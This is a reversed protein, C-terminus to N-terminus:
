ILLSIFEQFRRRTKAREGAAESGLWTGSFHHISFTNETIHTEGSVYDFPQFFDPACITMAGDFIRQTELSARMGNKLLPVTDYFGSSLRNESGDSRLFVCNERFDLMAKIAPNGKQAGCVGTNIVGWKEMGCFGLQFLLEDFNRVLEVDTDLYIGGHQYLIDLRAADSVFSWCERDYAQKMYLNQKVDYNSEDWRIIEYDPCFQPWTDMCRKLSDPIPRGSFWCYHIKKPILPEQGSPIAASKLTHAMDLLMVPLFYATINQLTGLKELTQVVPTFASVTILLIVEKSVQALTNPSEVPVQRGALEIFQGQKHLDADVYCLVADDLQHAHLWRPAITQGIVGAGYVIVPARTQTVREAFESFTGKKLIM